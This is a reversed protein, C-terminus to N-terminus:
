RIGDPCDALAVDANSKLPVQKGGRVGADATVLVQCDSDLIRSKLAEPSFGGFVVSHIAGIRACALMAYGVEPIMPMYICVRDGKKVGRAKLANAFRCVEDHLEQFSIYRQDDPEDGEWIIATHDAKEKLHRDICNYSANLKGGKFWSIDAKHYDVNSVEQWPEFWDIFEHAMRSWFKDPDQVSQQYMRHYREEDIHPKHQPNNIIPYTKVESM